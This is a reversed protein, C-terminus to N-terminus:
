SQKYGSPLTKHNDHFVLNKFKEAMINKEKRREEKSKSKGTIHVAFSQLSPVSQLAVSTMQLLAKIANTM